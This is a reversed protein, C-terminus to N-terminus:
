GPWVHLGEQRAATLLNKDYCAFIVQGSSIESWSLACALHISDYARLPYRWVLTAAREIVAPSLPLRAFAPWHSIFEQWALNIEGSQVLGLRLAKALASAIEAYTVVSTGLLDFNDFFQIVQQSENEQVYLKVLASTDAYLKM